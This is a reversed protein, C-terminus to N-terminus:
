LLNSQNALSFMDKPMLKKPNDEHDLSFILDVGSNILKKIFHVGLEVGGCDSYYLGLLAKIKNSKFYLKNRSIFNLIDIYIEDWEYYDLDEKINLLFYESEKKIYDWRCTSSYKRRIPALLNKLEERKEESSLRLKFFIQYFMVGGSWKNPNGTTQDEFDESLYSDVCFSPNEQFKRLKLLQKNTLYWVMKESSTFYFDIDINKDPLIGINLFDKKRLLLEELIDDLVQDYNEPPFSIIILYCISGHFVGTKTCIIDCFSIQNLVNLNLFLVENKEKEPIRIGVRIQSIAIINKM